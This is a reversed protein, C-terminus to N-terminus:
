RRESTDGAPRGASWQKRSKPTESLLRLKRVKIGSKLRLLLTRKEIAFQVTDGAFLELRVNPAVSEAATYIVDGAEFDFEGRAVTTGSGDAIGSSTDLRYQAHLVIATRWEVPEKACVRLALLCLFSVLWRSLNM